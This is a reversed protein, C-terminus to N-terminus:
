PNSSGAGYETQDVFEAALGKAGVAWGKGSIFTVANLGPSDIPVWHIGDRSTEAGNLGVTVFGADFTDVASRYGTPLAAALHWSKGEDDSYAATKESANPNAYDGGVVVVTDGARVISFIGQSAKGSIMPTESVTWTQGSDTSHFVRARHGGTAFYIETKEYLLLSSNSAAFAGEQPLAAPMKERPLEKWHVGDTTALLLFKGEVPDSLAFCRTQDSCVLADLFFGQRKDSYVKEWTSGADMSRYIGSAKGEGSAMVNVTKGDFTQVGRFDLTEGGAIHVSEWTKGGDVSRVVTGKSGTAWITTSGRHVVVAVGRLNADVGTSQVAWWCSAASALLLLSCAIWRM